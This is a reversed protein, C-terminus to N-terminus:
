VYDIFPEHSPHFSITPVARAVAVDLGNPMAKM